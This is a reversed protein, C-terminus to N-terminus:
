PPLVAGPGFIDDEMLTVVLFNYFQRVTNVSEPYKRLGIDTKTFMTRSFQTDSKTWTQVNSEKHRRDDAEQEVIVLEKRIIDDIPISLRNSQM